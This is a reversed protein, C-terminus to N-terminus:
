FFAIFRTSYFCNEWITVSKAVKDGGRRKIAYLLLRSLGSRNILLPCLNGAMFRASSKEKSRLNGIMDYHFRHLNFVALRLFRFRVNAFILVLGIPFPSLAGGSPYYQSHTYQVYAQTFTTFTFTTYAIWVFISSFHSQYLSQTFPMRFAFRGGLLLCWKKM